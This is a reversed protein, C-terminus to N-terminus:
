YNPVSQNVMVRTHLTLIVDQSDIERPSINYPILGNVLCIEGKNRSEHKGLLIM